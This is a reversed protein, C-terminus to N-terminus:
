TTAGKIIAFKLDFPESLPGFTVNTVRIGASGAVVYPVLSTYNGNTHTVLLLDSVGLLTNNLIFQVTAGAALAAANMTIHGCPKNLTVATSKSTAQTVTGGAGTGYGLGAANTVLVSGASDIRMKETLTPSTNTSRTNFVIADTQYDGAGSGGSQNTATITWSYGSLRGATSRYVGLGTGNGASSFSNTHATILTGGTTKAELISVPNTAGIGVNGSADIRMRETMAADTSVARNYFSLYGLGNSAGDSLGGKIAAFTQNPKGGFEIGGGGNPAVNTAIAYISGAKSGGVTPATTEGTGEVQLKSTPVAVGIGVNGSIDIRMRESGGTHFTMPLYTGTGSIASAIRVDATDTGARLQAFSTNDADSGSFANYASSVGAGNPIVGVSTGVNTASTQFLLRNALPSNSFDGIIRRATGSFSLDGTLTGGTLALKETDLENLAAQVNTAALNGAPTNAIASAAHAGTSAGTHTTLAANTALPIGGATVGNHVILTDKDTDVTVEGEAGTFANNQATTGRRLRIQTAM